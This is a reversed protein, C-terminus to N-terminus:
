KVGACVKESKKILHIIENTVELKKMEFLYERRPADFPFVGKSLPNYIMRVQYLKKGKISDLQKSFSYDIKMFDSYYFYMSDPFSVDEKIRPIYTEAIDGNPM